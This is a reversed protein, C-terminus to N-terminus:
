TSNSSGGISLGGGLTATTGLEDSHLLVDPKAVASGIQAVGISDTATNGGGAQLTGLSGTAVPVGTDPVGALAGASITTGLITLELHPDRALSVIKIGLAGLDVRVDDGDGTLRLVGADLLQQLGADFPLDPRLAHVLDLVLITGSGPYTGLASLDVGLLDGLVENGSLSVTATGGPALRAANADAHVTATSPQIQVAGTTGNTTNGGGLQVAVASGNATNTGTGGVLAGTSASVTATKVVHATADTAAQSHSVQVVGASGTATNDGGVQVVGGSQSAGNGTNPDGVTAETTSVVDGVPTDAVASTPDVTVPGVQVVGVSESSSNGQDVPAPKPPGAHVPSPPLQAQASAAAVLVVAAFALLVTRLRSCIM